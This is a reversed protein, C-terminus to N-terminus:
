VANVVSFVATNIGIALALTSVVVLTFRPDRLLVRMGYRIDQVLQDLWVTRAVNGFKRLAALRAEEAPMGREINDRTERELHDRIEDDLSELGRRRKVA